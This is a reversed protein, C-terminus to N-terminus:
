GGEKRNLGDHQADVGAAKVFMAVVGVADADMAIVGTADIATVVVFLM